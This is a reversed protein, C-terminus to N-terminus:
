MLGTHNVYLDVYDENGFYFFIQLVVAAPPKSSIDARCMRRVHCMRRVPGGAKFYKDYVFYRQMFTYKPPNLAPAGWNFHDPCGRAACSPPTLWVARAPWAAAAAPIMCAGITQNYWQVTCNATSPCSPDDPCHSFVVGACFALLAFTRQLMTM